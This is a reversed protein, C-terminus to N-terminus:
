KGTKSLWRVEGLAAAADGEANDGCLLADLAGKDLVGRYSEDGALDDGLDSLDRMDGVAFRLAESLPRPSSARAAELRAIAVPSYDVSTISTYGDLLVMDNQLKSPQSKCASTLNTHLASLTPSHNASTISSYGNLLVM